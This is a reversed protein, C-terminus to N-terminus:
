KLEKVLKDIKTIITKIIKEISKVNGNYEDPIKWVRLDKKYETFIEKPVNNAVIIIIDAKKIKNRELGKSLKSIKIKFKKAINKTIQPTPEAKIIGLSFASNNKNKNIRNFYAEAIKSRFRNNKCIFLIKM